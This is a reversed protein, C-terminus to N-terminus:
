YILYSILLYLKAEFPPLTLSIAQAFYSDSDYNM